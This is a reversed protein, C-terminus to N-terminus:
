VFLRATSNDVKVETNHSEEMNMCDVVLGPADKQATKCAKFANLCGGVTINTVKDKKGLKFEKMAKMTKDMKKLCKNDKFSKVDERNNINEWCTCHATADESKLTVCEQVLDKIKSTSNLFHPPNTLNKHCAVLEDWDEPITFNSCAEEVSASCNGLENYREKYESVRRSNSTTSNSVCTINNMNGGAGESLFGAVDQFKSKKANKNGTQETFKTFRSYKKLFNKVSGREWIMVNLANTLCEDSVTATRCQRSESTKRETKAEKKEKLKKKQRKKNRVKKSNPKKRGTSKNKKTKQTNPKDSNSNEPGGKSGTKKPVRKARLNLELEPEPELEPEANLSLGGRGEAQYKDDALCAALLFGLLVLLLRMRAVSASEGM